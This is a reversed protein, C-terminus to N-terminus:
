GNKIIELSEYSSDEVNVTIIVQLKDGDKLNMGLLTNYNLQGHTEIGYKECLVKLLAFFDYINQEM